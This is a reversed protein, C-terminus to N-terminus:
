LALGKYPSKRGRNPDPASGRFGRKKQKCPNIQKKIWFIPKNIISLFIKISNKAKKNSEQSRQV